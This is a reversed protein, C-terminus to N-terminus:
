EEDDTEFEILLRTSWTESNTDITNGGDQNTLYVNMRNIKGRDELTCKIPHQPRYQILSQPTVDPSISAIAPTHGGNLSVNTNLSTNILVAELSSFAAVNNAKFTATGTTLAAAPSTTDTTFGLLGNLSSSISNTTGSKNHCVKYGTEIQLVVKGTSTDGTLTFTSSSGNGSENVLRQLESNLNELSYLGNEFEVNYKNDVGNDDTYYFTNNTSNVNIFTYWINAEVVSVFCNKANQPITIPPNFHVDFSHGTSSVNEAGAATSSSLFLPIRHRNVM